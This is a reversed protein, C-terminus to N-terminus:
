GLTQPEFGAEKLTHINPKMGRRELSIQCWDM